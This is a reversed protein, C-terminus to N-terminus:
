LYKDSIVCYIESVINFKGSFDNIEFKTWSSPWNLPAITAEKYKEM